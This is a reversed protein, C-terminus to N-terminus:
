PNLFYKIDKEYYGNVTHVRVTCYTYKVTKRSATEKVM